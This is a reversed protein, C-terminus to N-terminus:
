FSTPLFEPYPPPPVLNSIDRMRMSCTFFPCGHIHVIRHEAGSSLICTKQPIASNIVSHKDSNQLIVTGEFMSLWVGLSVADCGM